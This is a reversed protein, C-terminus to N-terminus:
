SFRETEGLELLASQYSNRTHNAVHPGMLAYASSDLPFPEIEAMSVRSRRETKIAATSRKRSHRSSKKAKRGRKGGYYQDVVDDLGDETTSTADFPGFWEEQLKLNECAELIEDNEIVSEVQGTFECPPGNVQSFLLMIRRLTPKLGGKTPWKSRAVAAADQIKKITVDLQCRKALYRRAARASQISLGIGHLVTAGERRSDRRAEQWEEALAQLTEQLVELDEFLGATEDNFAEM